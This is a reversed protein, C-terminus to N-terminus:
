RHQPYLLFKEGNSYGQHPEEQTLMPLNATADKWHARNFLMITFICGVSTSGDNSASSTSTCCQFMKVLFKTYPCQWQSSRDAEALLKRQKEKKKEGM